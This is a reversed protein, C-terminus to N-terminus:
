IQLHQHISGCRFQLWTNHYVMPDEVELLEAWRRPEPVQVSSDELFRVIFLTNTGRSNGAFPLSKYPTGHQLWCRSCFLNYLSSVLEHRGRIPGHHTVIERASASSDWSNQHAIITKQGVAQITMQHNGVLQYHSAAPFVMQHIKVENHHTKWVKGGNAGCTAVTEPINSFASGDLICWASGIWAVITM